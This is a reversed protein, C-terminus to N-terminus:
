MEFDRLQVKERLENRSGKRNKLNHKNKGEKSSKKTDIEIFTSQM